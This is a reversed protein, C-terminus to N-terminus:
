LVVEVKQLWKNKAVVNHLKQKVEKAYVNLYVPTQQNIILTKKIWKLFLAYFSGFLLRLSDRGMKRPFLLAQM